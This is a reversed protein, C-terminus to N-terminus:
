ANREEEEDQLKEAEQRLQTALYDHEDALDVYRDAFEDNEERRSHREFADAMEAHAQALGTLQAVLEDVPERHPRTDARQREKRAARLEDSLEDGEAPKLALQSAKCGAQHEGEGRCSPCTALLLAAVHEFSTESM